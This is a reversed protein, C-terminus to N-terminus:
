GRSRLTTLEGVIRKLTRMDGEIVELRNKTEQLEKNAALTRRRSEKYRRLGDLDTSVVAKSDMDRVLDTNEIPVINNLGSM